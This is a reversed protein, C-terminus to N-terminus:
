LYECFRKTGTSKPIWKDILCDWIETLMDVTLSNRCMALGKRFRPWGSYKGINIFPQIKKKSKLDFFNFTCSLHLIESHYSLSSIAVRM